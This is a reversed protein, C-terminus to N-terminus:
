DKIFWYSEQERATEIVLDHSYFKVTIQGLKGTTFQKAGAEKYRTVVSPKPFEWQGKYASSHIVFQPKVANIFESSSSTDSGHHPSLMVTSQLHNKSAVLLAERSKSIDGTLLVSHNHNFVRVVCSDDNENNFKSSSFTQVTLGRFNISKEDCADSISKSHFQMLTTKYGADIFHKLGGAHDNDEHSLIATDVNLKNAKIYPLLISRTRSYRNFYSPGFDYVLAHKDKEILVMLGHGVDFVHLQWLPKNKVFYNFTIAAIPLLALWKFPLLYLLLMTAYSFVVFTLSVQGTSLWRLVEPIQNLLNFLRHVGHDFFQIILSIDIFSSLLTFVILLPLIVISLVPIAVLNIVLGVISVGNFFYLSLPLLGCFLGFQIVILALVKSKLRTNTIPLKSIVIFIIAVALFSFYLGPNLLYFPNIALVIVLAFLVSRWRLPQKAIFYLLLYCALMVLARTASVLFNSLYVYIFAALFGSLSYYISLNKSQDFLLNIKIFVFRTFIYALGFILSIHLGSIALLHSLGLSQMLQKDEFSMLSKDGSLLAYYLWLLKTHKYTNKLFNQYSLILSKNNNHKIELKKNLVKGKFLIRNIFAYRESDFVYFNKNSRFYKLNLSASFEDGVYLVDQTNVSLLAKPARFRSFTNTELSLIKVKIYQPAKSSIIEEIKVTSSLAYKEDQKPIEFSYFAYFNIGVCCIACIFGLLVNSFPKFYASVIVISITFITFELTQYYFVTTVCGIVFGLCIWVSTFPQKLHSFFRDM